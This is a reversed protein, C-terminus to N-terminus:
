SERRSHYTTVSKDYYNGQFHEKLFNAMKWFPKTRPMNQSWSVVLKGQYILYAVILEPHKYHFSHTLFTTLMKLSRKFYKIELRNCYFDSSRHRWRVSWTCIVKGVGQFKQDIIVWIPEQPSWNFINPFDTM